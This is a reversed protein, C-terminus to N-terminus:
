QPKSLDPVETQSLSLRTRLAEIVASLPIHRLVLKDNENGCEGLRYWRSLTRAVGADLDAFLLPSTGIRRGLDNDATRRPLLAHGSAYGVLMLWGAGDRALHWKAIAPAADLDVSALGRQAYAELDAIAAEIRSTDDPM